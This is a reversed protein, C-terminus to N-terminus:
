KIKIFKHSSTKGDVNVVQLHYLGESFHETSINVTGTSAKIYYIIQGSANVIRIQEAGTLGAITLNNRVPNPYIQITNQNKFNVTRVPSYEIRNDFDVQKLRYYSIGNLPSHDIFSYDSKANSNGDTSSPSVFGINVWTIGNSSREIEFGKNNQESATAWKLSVQEEKQYANFGILTVPTVIQNCSNDPDLTGTTYFDDLYLDFALTDYGSAPPVIGYTIDVSVMGSSSGSPIVWGITQVVGSDAPSYIYTPSMAPGNTLAIFINSSLSNFSAADIRFRIFVSDGATAITPSNLFYSNELEYGLSSDLSLYNVTHLSGSATIPSTTSIDFLNTDCLSTGIDLTPMGGRNNSGSGGGGAYPIVSWCPLKGSCVNPQEFNETIQAQTFTSVLVFFMLFLLNRIQKINKM